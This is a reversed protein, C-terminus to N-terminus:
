EETVEAIIQAAANRMLERLAAERATELDALTPFDAESNVKGERLIRGDPAALRYEARIEMRFVVTQYAADTHDHDHEARLKARSVRSQELGSVKTELRADGFSPKALTVGPTQMLCESLSNRLLGELAAEGTLNEVPMVEIARCDAPLTTGFHYHSCSACFWFIAVVLTKAAALTSIRWRGSIFHMFWM